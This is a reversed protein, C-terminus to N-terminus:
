EVAKAIPGYALQRTARIQKARQQLKALATTNGTKEVAALAKNILMEAQTYDGKVQCVKAKTLWSGAIFQHDPGYIKEQTAIARNILNEAQAYKGQLTYLKAIGALVNATYLHDQGYDDDILALARHYYSEAKEFDGRAALIEAIDVLFPAIVMDDPRHTHLMITMAEDLASEAKGYKGQEKYISGLTRLTYALYPHSKYLVKKQLALGSECMKEAEVLKGQNSYLVALDILCMALESDATEKGEALTLAKEALPQAKAYQGYAMYVRAMSRLTKSSPYKREPLLKGDAIGAGLLVLSFVLILFFSKGKLTICNVRNKYSKQYTKKQCM